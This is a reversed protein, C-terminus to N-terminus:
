DRWSAFLAHHEKNREAILCGRFPFRLGDFLFVGRRNRSANSICSPNLCGMGFAKIVIIETVNNGYLKRPKQSFAFYYRISQKNVLSTMHLAIVHWRHLVSPRWCKAMPVFNRFLSSFVAEYPYFLLCICRKKMM